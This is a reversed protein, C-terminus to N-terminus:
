KSERVQKLFDKREDDTTLSAYFKRMSEMTPAAAVAVSRVGPKWVKAAEVYDTGANLNRRILAQLDVVADARFGTFVVEDGFKKAADAMNDGFDYEVAGAKGGVMKGDVKKGGAKAAVSQIAM